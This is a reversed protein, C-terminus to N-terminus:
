IPHFIMLQPRATASYFPRDSEKSALLEGDKPQGKRESYRISIFVNWLNLGSFHEPLMYLPGKCPCVDTPLRDMQWWLAPWLTLAVISTTSVYDYFYIRSEKSIISIQSTFPLTGVWFM